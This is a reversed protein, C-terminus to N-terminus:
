NSKLIRPGDETDTILFGNEQLKTRVADSTDWDKDTRAKERQMILEQIEEPLDKINLFSAVAKENIRLGLVTDIELITQYKDGDSLPSKLIEYVIGLAQPTNFDDGIKEIFAQIYEQQPNGDQSALTAISQYLNELGNHAAALADWTFNQKSRYHAQLYFFRLDLASYGKDLIDQLSYGTGESKAMKKNDVLIHEHHIWYHAFPSKNASESQAIENTHHTPIHEIGGIHIDFTPGLYKKSMASCEIHWGPFGQGNEVLPSVFPSEWTQLAHEYEGTKFFWLAFDTPNRKNQDHASGHGEGAINQDINQGSLRTYDKAKSVDFYIALPTNYAFGRELLTQIMEQMEAIHETAKPTQTIPLINLATIDNLYQETYKQAIAEPTTEERKAAKEMKDEGSDTNGDNEGTLHGVDTYNRVFTVTDKHFLFTRHIIDGVFAARLNGIHQTWYVTPGCQYIGVHHPEIPTFDEKQKTLTNYIKM